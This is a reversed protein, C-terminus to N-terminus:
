KPNIRSKEVRIGSKGNQGRFQGTETEQSKLTDVNRPRKSLLLDPPSNQLARSRREPLSHNRKKSEVRVHSHMNILQTKPQTTIPYHM